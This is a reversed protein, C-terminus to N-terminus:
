RDVMDLFELRELERKNEEREKKTMKKPPPRIHIGWDSILYLTRVEPKEKMQNVGILVVGM